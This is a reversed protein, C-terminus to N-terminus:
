ACMWATASGGAWRWQNKLEDFPAEEDDGERFLIASTLIEYPPRTAMIQHEFSIPECATADAESPPPSCRKQERLPRRRSRPLRQDGGRGPVDQDGSIASAVEAAAMDWDTTARRNVSSGFFSPGSRQAGFGNNLPLDLRFSTNYVGTRSLEWNPTTAPGSGRGLTLDCGVGM